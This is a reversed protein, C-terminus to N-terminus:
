STPTVEYLMSGARERTRIRVRAFPNRDASACSRSSAAVTNRPVAVRSPSCQCPSTTTSGDDILTTPEILLPLTDGIDFISTSRHSFRMTPSTKSPTRSTTTFARPVSDDGVISTVALRVVGAL